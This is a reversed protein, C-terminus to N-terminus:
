PRGAYEEDEAVEESKQYIVPIKLTKAWGIEILSGKSKRYGELVYVAEIGARRLVMEAIVMYDDWPLEWGSIDTPNIVEHGQEILKMEADFFARRAEEESQGTIPGSIYVKMGNEGEGSERKGTGQDGKHRGVLEPLYARGTKEQM